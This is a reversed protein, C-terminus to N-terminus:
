VVKLQHSRSKVHARMAYYTNRLTDIEAHCSCMKSIIKDSSMTRYHNHGRGVIKGNMVAICGHKMLCPSKSAEDFAYSALSIDKNSIYDVM